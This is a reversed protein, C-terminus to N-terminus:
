VPTANKMRCRSWKLTSQMVEESFAWLNNMIRIEINRRALEEFLCDYKTVGIPIETKDSVFFGAQEDWYFNAPDFEYLYLTTEAMKKHWDHEIAVGHRASSAFFKAIDERTTGPVARYGVRPCDRPTLWHPVPAEELSWVLGKSQDVDQRYPVRPIFKEIGPEESVHFLRMNYLYERSDFTRTGDFSTYSGDNKYVFGLKELIRGSATNEKAHCAFFKKKGLVRTAFTLVAQAAETALGRGWAAKMMCYGLEFMDHTSNYFVGGSGFPRGTEKLVFLWDFVNPSEINKESATLWTITEDISSHTSWRMFKAVDPDSTWNTFIAQADSIKTPRLLIRPTELTPTTM